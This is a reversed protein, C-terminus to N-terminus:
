PSRRRLALPSAESDLEFDRILGLAHIERQEDNLTVLVAHQGRRPCPQHHLVVGSGLRDAADAVALIRGDGDHIIHVDLM